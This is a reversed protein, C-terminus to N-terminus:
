TIEAICSEDGSKQFFRLFDIQIPDLPKDALLIRFFWSLWRCFASDGLRTLYSFNLVSSCKSIISSINKLQSGIVEKQKWINASYTILATLIYAKSTGWYIHFVQKYLCILIYESELLVNLLITFSSTSILLKTQEFCLFGHIFENHRGTFTEM